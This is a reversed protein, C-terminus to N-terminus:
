FALPVFSSCLQCPLYAGVVLLFVFRRAILFGGSCSSTQSLPQLDQLFVARAVRVGSFIHHFSSAQNLPQPSIRESSEAAPHPMLCFYKVLIFFCHCVLYGNLHMPIVCPLWFCVSFTRRRSFRHSNFFPFILGFSSLSTM